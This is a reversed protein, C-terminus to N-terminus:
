QLVRRVKQRMPIHIGRQFFLIVFSDFLREATKFRFKRGPVTHACQNILQGIINIKQVGKGCIQIGDDTLSFCITLLIHVINVCLREDTCKLLDKRFFDCPMVLQAMEVVALVVLSHELYQFLNELTEIM